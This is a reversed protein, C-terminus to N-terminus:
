QAGGASANASDFVIKTRSGGVHIEQINSNTYAVETVTFKKTVSETHAPVQITQKGQKIVAMNNQIEIKYDGAKISKGEVVSDQSIQVHYRNSAATAVIVGVAMSSLLLKEFM